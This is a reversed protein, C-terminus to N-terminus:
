RSLMTVEPDPSPFATLLLLTLLLHSTIKLKNSVKMGAIKTADFCSGTETFVPTKQRMKIDWMEKKLTTM